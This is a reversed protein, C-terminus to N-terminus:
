LIYSCLALGSLLKRMRLIIQIQANLALEFTSDRKVRGFRLILGRLIFDHKTIPFVVCVRRSFVSVVTAIM